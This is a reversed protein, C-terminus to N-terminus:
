GNSTSISRHGVPLKFDIKLNKEIFGKSPDYKNDALNIYYFSRSYEEFYFLLKKDQVNYYEGNYININTIDIKKVEKKSNKTIVDLYNESPIFEPEEKKEKTEELAYKKWDTYM